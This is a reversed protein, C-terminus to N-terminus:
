NDFSLNNRLREVEEELHRLRILQESKERKAKAVPTEYKELLKVFVSDTKNSLMSMFGNIALLYSKSAEMADKIFSPNITLTVTKKVSDSEIDIITTKSNVDAKAKEVEAEIRSDALGLTDFMKGTISKDLDYFAKIESYTLVIKM